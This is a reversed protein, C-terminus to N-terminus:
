KILIVVRRNKGRGTATENPEVPSESGFAQTKIQNAPVGKRQLYTAIGKARLLSLRLNFKEKGKNDSYGSVEIVAAKNSKAQAILNKLSAENKILDYPRTSGSKFYLMVQGAQTPLPAAKDQVILKEKDTKKKLVFTKNIRALSDKPITITDKITEYGASSITVNYNKNLALPATYNGQKDTMVSGANEGTNSDFFTIESEIGQNEKDAIRGKVVLRKLIEEKVAVVSDKKVVPENFVIMYLDRDSRQERISSFYAHNGNKIKVFHLDDETSNIPYGINEPTSWKNNELVSKFIDYGGMTKHGMSSFYLTKGDASIYSSIEDAETNIEAGLNEAPGWEGNSNKFSRYIDSHGKGGPRESAFYLTTGDETASASSEFYETNVTAPLPKPFLWTNDSSLQSEYIDGGNKGIATNKYIYLSKGNPTINLAADHGETNILPSIQQAKRWTDTAPDKTSIYIDENYQFDNQDKYGGTTNERRSTFVLLSEDSKLSPAYDPFPSNVAEGLNVISVDKPTKVQEKAYNCQDIFKNVDSEKQDAGSASKRYLEFEALAKDLEGNLHYAKGLLLHITKHVHNDLKFSRELSAIALAKMKLNLYCEGLRFALKANEPKKDSLEKYLVLAARYDRNTLKTSATMRKFLDFSSNQQSGTSTNTSPVGKTQAAFVFM